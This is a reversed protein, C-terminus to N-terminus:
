GAACSKILIATAPRCLPLIRFRLKSVFAELTATSTAFRFRARDIRVAPSGHFRAFPDSQTPCVDILIFVSPLDSSAIGNATCLSLRQSELNSKTVSATVRPPKSGTQPGALILSRQNPRSWGPVPPRRANLNLQVHSAQKKSEFFTHKPERFGKPCNM